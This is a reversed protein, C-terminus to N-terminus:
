MRSTADLQCNSAKVNSLQDPLYGWLIGQDLQHLGTIDALPRLLGADVDDIFRHM